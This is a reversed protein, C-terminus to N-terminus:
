NLSPNGFMSQHYSRAPPLRPKQDRVRLLSPRCNTIVKQRMNTVRLSSKMITTWLFYRWRGLKLSSSLNHWVSVIDTCTYCQKNHTQWFIMPTGRNQSRYNRFVAVLHWPRSSSFALLKKFNLICALPKGCFSLPFLYYQSQPLILLWHWCQPDTFMTQQPITM